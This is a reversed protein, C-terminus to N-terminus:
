KKPPRLGVAKNIIRESIGTCFDAEGKELPKDMYYDAIRRKQLLRDLQDGMTADSEKLEDIVAQHVGHDDPFNCGLRELREKVYLFAAYYARGISTRVRCHEEYRRDATLQTALKLFKRPKFRKGSPTFM